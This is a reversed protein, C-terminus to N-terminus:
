LAKQFYLLASLGLRLRKSVLEHNLSKNGFYVIAVTRNYRDQTISKVEVEKNGVLSATFMKASKGFAQRKESTDIGYLRIKIQKNQGNLVVITLLNRRDGDQGILFRNKAISVHVPKNLNNKRRIISIEGTGM